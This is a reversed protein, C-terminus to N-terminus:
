LPTARLAVCAAVSRRITSASAEQWALGYALPCQLLQTITAMSLCGRPPLVRARLSCPGYQDALAELELQSMHPMVRSCVAVFSKRALTGDGASDLREFEGRM